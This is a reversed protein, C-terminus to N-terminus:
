IVIKQLKLYLIKSKWHMSSMFEDHEVHQMYNEFKQFGWKSTLLSLSSHLDYLEQVSNVYSVAGLNQSSKAFYGQSTQLLGFCVSWCASKSIISAYLNFLSYEDTYSWIGKGM